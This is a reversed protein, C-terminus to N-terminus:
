DLRYKGMALENLREDKAMNIPDTFVKVFAHNEIFNSGRTLESESLLLDLERETLGDTGLNLRTLCCHKFNERTCVPQGKSFIGFMIGVDCQLQALKRAIRMIM